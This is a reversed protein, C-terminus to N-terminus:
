EFVTPNNLSASLLIIYELVKFKSIDVISAHIDPGFLGSSLTLREFTFSTTLESIFFCFFADGDDDFPIISSPEIIIAAIVLQVM